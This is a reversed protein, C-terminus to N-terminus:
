CFSLLPWLDVDYAYDKTDVSDEYVYDDADDGDNLVGSRASDRCLRESGEAQARRARGCLISPRPLLTRRPHRHPSHHHHHLNTYNAISGRSHLM